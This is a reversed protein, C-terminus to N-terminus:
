VYKRDLKFREMSGLFTKIRQPFDASQVRDKHLELLSPRTDEEFINLRFPNAELESNSKNRSEKPKGVWASKRLKVNTVDCSKVQRNRMPLKMTRDIEKGNAEMKPTGGVTKPRFLVRNDVSIKAMKQPQPQMQTAGGIAIAKGEETTGSGPIEAGELVGDRFKSDTISKNIKRKDSQGATATPPPSATLSKTVSNSRAETRSLGMSERLTPAPKGTRWINRLAEEDERTLGNSVILKNNDASKARLERETKKDGMLKAHAIKAKNLRKKYAIFTLKQNITIRNVVMRKSTELYDLNKRLVENQKVNYMMVSPSKEAERVRYRYPDARDNENGSMGPM